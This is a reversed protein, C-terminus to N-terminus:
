PVAVAHAPGLVSRSGYKFIDYVLDCGVPERLFGLPATNSGAERQDKGRGSNSLGYEAPGLARCVDHILWRTRRGDAPSRYKLVM